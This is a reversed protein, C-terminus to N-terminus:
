RCYQQRSLTEVCFDIFTVLPECYIILITVLFGGGGIDAQMRKWFHRKLYLVIEYSQM